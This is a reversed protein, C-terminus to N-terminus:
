TTINDPLPEMIKKHMAVVQCSLCDPEIGEPPEHKCGDFEGVVWKVLAQVAEIGGPFAKQWAYLKKFDRLGSELSVNLMERGTTAMVMEGTTLLYQVVEVGCSPM